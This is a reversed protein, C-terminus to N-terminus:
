GQAFLDWLGANESPKNRSFKEISEKVAERFQDDSMARRAFGVITFGVPLSRTVLLNFLAPLLKRHALDGTVGFIVITCPDSTRRMRLGERLPNEALNTNLLTTM